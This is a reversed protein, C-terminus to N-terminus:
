QGATTRIAPWFQLSLVLRSPTVVNRLEGAVMEGDVYRFPLAVYYTVQSM